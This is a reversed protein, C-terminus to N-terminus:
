LVYFEKTVPGCGHTRPKRACVIPKVIRVALTLVPIRSSFFSPTLRLV